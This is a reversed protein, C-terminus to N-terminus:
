PDGHASRKESGTGVQTPQSTTFRLRWRNGDDDRGVDFGDTLKRIIMLGYGHVQVQEPEAVTAPDFQPCSDVVTVTLGDDDVRAVLSVRGDEEGYGHVMINNCLEVLALEARSGLDAAPEPGRGVELVAKLWPGIIRTSLTTAPLVLEVPDRLTV